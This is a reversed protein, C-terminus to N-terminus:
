PAPDRLFLGLRPMGRLWQAHGWQRRGGDIEFRDAGGGDSLIGIGNATAAAQALAGATYHDDGATDILAGVALDLGMGQGVGFSLAYRDNGGEDRLVGVAEHVGNGQAYRIAQYRDDGGRDWLLGLGYFYGTGHAFMEAVYVDNGGDDRLIGVGGPLMSRIGMAVGQAGSLGGGRNYGDPLGRATYRDNGSVDWLLALGGTFASGQGWANIEYSDNGGRDILAAVGFASFAQSFYPARYRDDGSADVLLSAGAVVGALGPGSMEYRDDGAFDFLASLGRVVFDSGGYRDNGGLDVIVSIAGGSAPAREYVDDGGPDVILAAPGTRDAGRSGIVVLGIASQFQTPEPWDHATRLAQAFRSTAAAFRESVRGLADRDVSAGIELQLDASLLGDGAQKLVKAEDFSGSAALLDAQLVALEEIYADLLRDFPQAAVPAPDAALARLAEPVRRAFFARADLADLPRGLLERTLPPADRPPPGEHRLTNDIIALTEGLGRAALLRAVRAELEPGAGLLFLAAALALAAM